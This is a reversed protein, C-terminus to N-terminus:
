VVSDLDHHQCCSHYAFRHLNIELHRSAPPRCHDFIMCMHDMDETAASPWLLRM